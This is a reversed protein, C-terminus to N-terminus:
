LAESDLLHDIAEPLTDGMQEGAFFVAADPDYWLEILEGKAKLLEHLKMLREQDTYIKM